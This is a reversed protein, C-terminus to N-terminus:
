SNFFRDILSYKANRHSISNIINDLMGGKSSSGFLDIVVQECWRASTKDVNPIIENIKRGVRAWEAQRRKFNNTIGVYNVVGQKGYSVYVSYDGKPLNNAVGQVMSIAADSARKATRIDGSADATKAVVGLTKVAEGVCTVGPLLDIVDGLLGAWTWFSTPEAAVAAISVGLTAIDFATELVDGTYDSYIIPNNQCYAYM